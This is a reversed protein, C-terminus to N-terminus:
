QWCGGASHQSQTVTEGVRMTDVMVHAVSAFCDIQGPACLREVPIQGNDRYHLCAERQACWGGMCPPRNPLKRLVYVPRRDM